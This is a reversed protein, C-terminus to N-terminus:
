YGIKLESRCIFELFSTRYNESNIKRASERNLLTSNITNTRQNLFLRVPGVEELVNLLILLPILFIGLMDIKKADYGAPLLFNFFRDIEKALKAGSEAIDNENMSTFYSKACNHLHDVYLCFSRVIARDISREPLFKNLSIDNVYEVIAVSEFVISQDIKLVPVKKLPSINNLWLPKNLFDISNFEYEVGGEILALEARQSFPCISSGVLTIIENM